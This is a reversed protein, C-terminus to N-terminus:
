NSFTSKMYKIVKSAIDKRFYEENKKKKIQSATLYAEKKASELTDSLATVSLVRGGNTLVRGMSDKKTGSHFVYTNSDFTSDLGHIIEGTHYKEPYGKLGNNCLCFKIQGTSRHCSDLREDM